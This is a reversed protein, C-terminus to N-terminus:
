NKDDPPRYANKQLVDDLLGDLRYVNVMRKAARADLTHDIARAVVEVGAAEEAHQHLPEDDDDEDDDDEEEPFGGQTAGTIVMTGISIVELLILAVLTKTLQPGYAPIFVKLTLYPNVFPVQDYLV